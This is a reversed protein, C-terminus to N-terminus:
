TRSDNKNSEGHREDRRKLLGELQNALDVSLGRRRAIRLTFTGAVRYLEVIEAPVCAAHLANMHAAVTRVDGREIPGTLAGVPGERLANEVSNRILPGLAPLADEPSVGATEMLGLAAEILAIVYNSAMVAGAHYAAKGDPRVALSRGGLLEVIQGAWVAGRGTGSIAFACGRLAAVGHEPSSVTQLPHLTACAVGRVALPALVETGYAGCTHVAAGEKMGNQALALAVAAIADDPVAILLRTVELPVEGYRVAEVGPGIFAAAAHARAANRSIVVGVPEGSSHLLRGLAQAVRGTGAIGIVEHSM